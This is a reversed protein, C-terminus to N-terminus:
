TALQVRISITFTFPFFLLISALFSIPFFFMCTTFSQSHSPEDLPEENASVWLPTLYRSDGSLQVTPQELSIKNWLMGM